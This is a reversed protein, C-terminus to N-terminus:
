IGVSEIYCSDDSSCEQIIFNGVGLKELAFDLAKASSDFTGYVKKDSIVLTCDGYQSYLKEQNNVFWEFDHEQKITLELPEVM